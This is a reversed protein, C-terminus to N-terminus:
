PSARRWSTERLRIRMQTAFNAAPASSSSAWAASRRWSYSALIAARSRRTPRRASSISNRFPARFLAGRGLLAGVDTIAPGTTEGDGFSATQHAQRAGGIIVDRRDRGIFGLDGSADLRDALLEFGIAIKAQRVLIDLAKLYLRSDSPHAIATEQVTTDITVRELSSPTVTETELAVEITAQLVEPISQMSRM